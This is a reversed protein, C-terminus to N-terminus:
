LSKVALGQATRPIPRTALMPVIIPVRAVSGSLYAMKRDREPHPPCRDSVQSVTVDLLM